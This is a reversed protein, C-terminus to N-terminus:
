TLEATHILLPNDIVVTVDNKYFDNATKKDIYMVSDRSVNAFSISKTESTNGAKDTATVTVEYHGVQDFTISTKNRHWEVPGQLEFDSGDKKISIDVKDKAFHKENVEIGLHVTWKYFKGDEIGSLTVEPARTDKTVYFTTQRSPPEVVWSDENFDITVPIKDDKNIGTISVKYVGKFGGNTIPTINVKGPGKVDAKVNFPLGGEPIEGAVPPTVTDNPPSQEDTSETGEQNESKNAETEVPNVPEEPPAEGKPKLYNEYDEKLDVQFEL